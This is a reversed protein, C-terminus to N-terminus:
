LNSYGVCQKPAYSSVEKPAIHTRKGKYRNRRLKFSAM